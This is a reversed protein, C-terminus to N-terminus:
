ATRLEVALLDFERIMIMQRLVEVLEAKDQSVSPRRPSQSSDRERTARAPALPPWIGHRPWALSGGPIVQGLVEPAAACLLPAPRPANSPAHSTPSIPSAHPMSQTQSPSIWKVGARDTIEAESRTALEIAVRVLRRRMPVATCTRGRLWGSRMASSIAVISW